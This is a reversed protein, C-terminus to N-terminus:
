SKLYKRLQVLSSTKSHKVHKEQIFFDRVFTWFLENYPSYELGFVKCSKVIIDICKLFSCPKWFLDDKAVYFQTVCTDEAGVVIITPQFNNKIEKLKELAPGIDSATLCHLLSDTQAQGISPLNRGDIRKPKILGPFLKYVLFYRSCLSIDTRRLKEIIDLCNKDRPKNAAVYEMFKETFSHWGMLLGDGTGEGLADFDIDLYVSGENDKFRPWLELLKQFKNKDTKLDRISDHRYKVTKRWRTKVDEVPFNNNMLWAHEQKLTLLDQQSFQSYPEAVDATDGGNQLKRKKGIPQFAKRDRSNYYRHYILGSPNLKGIQKDRSCLYTDKSESDFKASILESFKEMDHVPFPKEQSIYSDCVIESLQKRMLSNLTHFKEYYKTIIKGKENEKLLKELDEPKVHSKSFNLTRSCGEQPPQYQASESWCRLKSRFRIKEGTRKPSFLDDVDEKKLLKLDEYSLGIDFYFPIIKTESICLTSRWNAFGVIRLGAM